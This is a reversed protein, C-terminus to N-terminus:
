STPSCSWSGLNRRTPSALCGHRGPGELCEPHDGLCHRPPSNRHPIPPCPKSQHKLPRLLPKLPSFHCGGVGNVMHIASSTSRRASKSGSWDSDSFTELLWRTELTKVILGRGPEPMELITHQGLTDKLYGISRGLKRLSGTTPNSMSGALEKIAFAVDPREQSLYTGCGVVPRFLSALEPELLTAGDPELMEQTCPLKQIKAKGMTAEYSEIMTEAYKGPTIKLGNELLEYTRRLFQFSTGPETLYQASIEYIERLAPLLKEELYRREGTFLVDDVHILLLAKSELCPNIQSFVFGETKLWSTLM